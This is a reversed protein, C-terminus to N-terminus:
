RRGVYSVGGGREERAGSSDVHRGSSGRQGRGRRVGGTGVVPDVCVKASCDSDERAGCLGKGQGVLTCVPGQSERASGQRGARGQKDGQGEM